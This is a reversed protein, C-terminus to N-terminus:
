QPLLITPLEMNSHAKLSFLIALLALIIIGKNLGNVVQAAPGHVILSKSSGYFNRLRKSQRTIKATNVNKHYQKSTAIVQISFYHSLYGNEMFTEVGVSQVKLTNGLLCQALM